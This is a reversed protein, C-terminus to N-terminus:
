HGVHCIKMMGKEAPIEKVEMMDSTTEGKENQVVFKYNGEDAKTPETIEFKVSYEGKLSIFLHMYYLNGFAVNPLSFEHVEKIQEIKAFHKKDELITETGKMVKVKPPSDSHVICEMVVTKKKDDKVV